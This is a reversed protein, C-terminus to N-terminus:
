VARRQHRFSENFDAVWTRPKKSTAIVRDSTLIVRDARYQAFGYEWTVGRADRLVQERVLLASGPEVGLIGAIEPDAVRADVSVDISGFDVGPYQIPFEVELTHMQASGQLLSGSNAGAAFTTLVGIPEGGVSLLVECMTVDSERDGLRMELYSNGTMTFTELRRYTMVQHSDEPVIDQVPIPIPESRVTTGVAPRRQVLGDVALRQMAERVASRSFGFNGQISREDLTFGSPLRGSKIAFRLLTYARHSFNQRRIRTTTM